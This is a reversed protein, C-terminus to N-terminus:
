PIVNAAGLDRVGNYTEGPNETYAPRKVFEEPHEEKYRRRTVEFAGALSVALTLEERWADMMPVYKALVPDFARGLEEAEDKELPALKVLPGAIKWLTACLLAAAAVSQETPVYPPREPAPTAAAGSSTRKTKSGPPRGRKRPEEGREARVRDAVEATDELDLAM